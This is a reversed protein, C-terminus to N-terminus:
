LSTIVKSTVPSIFIRAGNTTCIYSSGSRGVVEKMSTYWRKGKRTTVLVTTGPEVQTEILIGWRKHDPLHTLWNIKYPRGAVITSVGEAFVEDQQDQACRLCEGPKDDESFVFSGCRKCPAGFSKGCNKCARSSAHNITHCRPCVRVPAEGHGDEESRAELSWIHARDEEPLGHTKWNNCADLILAYEKGPAPRMSRGIMQLYLSLSQTPRLILISDIMPVDFGETIVEVCVLLDLDGRSFEAVAREREDPHTNGLIVKSRLGMEIAYENVGEAHQVNLCYCVTRSTPTREELLWKIGKEILLVRDNAAMTQSTSYDGAVIGGPKITVNDKPHRVICPVLYGADILDKVAPGKIMFDFLHDFGEKRSLRWPTATLGLISGPWEELIKAWTPASAHHAEDAVLLSHKNPRYTGNKIRNYMRVPSSVIANNIGHTKLHNASQRELERRHTLWYLDHKVLSNLWETGIACAVISKGSGTACQYLVKARPFRLYENIKDVAEVQYDRLEM